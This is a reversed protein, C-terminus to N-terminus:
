PKTGPPTQKDGHAVRGKRAAYEGREMGEITSPKWGLPEGGIHVDRPPLKGKQEWQWRTTKTIGYRQEIGKPWIIADGVSRFKANAGPPRGPGPKPPHKTVM